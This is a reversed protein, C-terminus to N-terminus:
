KLNQMLRMYFAVAPGLEGVSLRENTGHVRGLDDVDFHFPDFRFVQDAIPLYHRSDTAGTTTDPAVPIGGFSAQLQAVLYQGAPSQLDSVKSAEAQTETLAVVDVRPDSIAKKVHEVVGAITDRPHLRFNFTATAVPPLVNDKVGGSILTPAITTHLRAASDPIGDMYRQVVPATIWLNGLLLRTFFPARPAITAMKDRQVGDLGSVFPHDVVDLVAKSLRAVAMDGTPRSSHGGTGHAVIKLSLYGKEAVSVFAIPTEVGPFPENAIVGGEDLVWAFHIGRKALAQAALGNGKAGGVEEDQGFAFMITREPVFRKAALADAAELLTILCGKDDIAGRGWVYGGAIEGSFPAHAWDKETGPVVPVVDMHAMLLVPPLSPNKGKWTFVLTHDMIERTAARHFAPYTKAMWDRMADLAAFKEAENVGDSYSITQFRVAEGLHQAARRASISALLPSRVVTTAGPPAAIMMTHGIVIVAVLLVAAVLGALALRM